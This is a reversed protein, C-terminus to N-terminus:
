AEMIGYFYGDVCPHSFDLLILASAHTPNHYVIVGHLDIEPVAGTKKREKSKKRQKLFFLM